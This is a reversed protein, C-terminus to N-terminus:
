TTNIIIIVNIQINVLDNFKPQIIIKTFSISHVINDFHKGYTQVLYKNYIYSTLLLFTAEGRPGTISNNLPVVVLNLM